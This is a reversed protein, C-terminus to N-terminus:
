SSHPTSLVAYLICLSWVYMVLLPGEIMRHGGGGCLAGAGTKSLDFFPNLLISRCHCDFCSSLLHEDEGAIIQM